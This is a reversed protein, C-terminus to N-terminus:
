GTRVVAGVGARTVADAIVQSLREGQEPAMSGFGIFVPSQGAALFGALERPLSGAEPGPLGGTAPCRTPQDSRLWGPGQYSGPFILTEM